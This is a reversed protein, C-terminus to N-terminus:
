RADQREMPAETSVQRIRGVCVHLRQRRPCPADSCVSYHTGDEFEDPQRESGVQEPRSNHPHVQCRSLRCRNRPPLLEDRRSYVLVPSNFDHFLTFDYLLCVDYDAFWKDFEEKGYLKGEGHYKARIADNLVNIHSAGTQFVTKMHYPKYGLIDLADMLGM